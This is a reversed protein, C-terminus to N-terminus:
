GTVGTMLGGTETTKYELGFYTAYEDVFTHSGDKKIDERLNMFFGGRVRVLSLLDLDLGIAYGDYISGTLMGHIVLHVTGFKTTYSMINIGFERAMNLVWMQSKPASSDDAAFNSIANAVTPSCVVVREGIGNTFLDKLWGHWTAKTLTGGVALVNSTQYELIGGTFRLPSGNAGTTLAKEGFIMSAEIHRMHKILNKKQMYRRQEDIAYMNQHQLQYSTSFSNRSDQIYNTKQVTLRLPDLNSTGTEEYANGVILVTANDAISAAASAGVSRTVTLTNTGTNVATVQLIEGTSPVDVICGPAFISADDVVIATDSDTYGGGNNIQTSFSQLADEYWEFEYNTVQRIGLTLSKAGQEVIGFANNFPAPTPKMGLFLLSAHRPALFAVAPAVDRVKQTQTINGTHVAVNNLITAM